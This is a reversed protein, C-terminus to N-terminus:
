KLQPIYQKAVMTGIIESAKDQTIESTQIKGIYKLMEDLHRKFVTKDFQSNLYNEHIFNFLTQSIKCLYHYRDEFVDKNPMTSPDKKHYDLDALFQKVQEKVRDINTRHINNSKGSM